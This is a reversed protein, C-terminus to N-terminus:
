DILWPNKLDSVPLGRKKLKVKLEEVKIKEAEEMTCMKEADIQPSPERPSSPPSGFPLPEEQVDPGDFKLEEGDEWFARLGNADYGKDIANEDVPEIMRRQPSKPLGIDKAGIPLYLSALGGVSAQSLQSITDSPSRVQNHVEIVSVGAPLPTNEDENGLSEM